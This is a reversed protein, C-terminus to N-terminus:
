RFFDDSKLIKESLEKIINEDKLKYYENLNKQNFPFPPNQSNKELFYINVIKFIIIVLPAHLLSCGISDHIVLIKINLEICIEIVKFMISSDYSHITNPILSQQTKRFDLNIIENPIRSYINYNMNTYNISIMTRKWFLTNNTEIKKKLFNIKDNIKIRENENKELKLKLKLKNVNNLLQMRNIIKNNFPAIPLEYDSYWTYVHNNNKLKNCIKKYNELDFDIEKLFQFTLNWFYDAIKVKEILTLKKWINNNKFELEMNKRNKFKGMGYSAPMIRFKSSEDNQLSILETVTLKNNIKILFNFHNEINIKHTIYSYINNYDTDNEIINTLKLLKENLSGLRLTLLQIANSSADGWFLNTFIDEKINKLTDHIALLNPIKKIRWFDSWYELNNEIDDNIFNFYYQLSFVIKENLTKKKKNSLKKLFIILIELKIKEEWTNLNIIKWKFNKNIFDIILKLNDIKNYMFNITQKNIYKKIISLNFFNEMLENLNINHNNLYIINRIVHNLQYNLPWNNCYIRCRSDLLYTVFFGTKRYLFLQKKILEFITLNNILTQNNVEPFIYNDDIIINNNTNQLFYIDNKLINKSIITSDYLKKFNAINEITNLLKENYYLKTDNLYNIIKLIKNKDYEDNLINNCIVNTDILTLDIKNKIWIPNSYNNNNLIDIVKTKNGIYNVHTKFISVNKRLYKLKILINVIRPEICVLYGKTFKIFLLEDPYKNLSNKKLKTYLFIGRIRTLATVIMNLQIIRKKLYISNLKPLFINILNDNFNLHITNSFYFNDLNKVIWCNDGKRHRLDIEIFENISDQFVYQITKIISWKRDIDDVNSYYMDEIKNIKVNFDIKEYLNNYLILFNLFEFGKEHQIAIEESFNLKQELIINFFNEFNLYNLEKKIILDDKIKELFYFKFIIKM